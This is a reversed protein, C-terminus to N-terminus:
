IFVRNRLEEKKETFAKKEEPKLLEYLEEYSLEELVTGKVPELLMYDSWCEWLDNFLEKSDRYVRNWDFDEGNYWRLLVYGWEGVSVAIMDGYMEFLETFADIVRQCKVREEESIIEFRNKNMQM